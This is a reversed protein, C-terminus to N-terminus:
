EGDWDTQFRVVAGDATARVDVQSLGYRDKIWRGRAHWAGWRYSCPAQSVETRLCPRIRLFLEHAVDNARACNVSRATVKRYAGGEAGSCNRVRAASASSAVALALLVAAAVILLVGTARATFPATMQVLSGRPLPVVTSPARAPVTATGM